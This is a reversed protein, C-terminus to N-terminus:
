KAPELSLVTLRVSPTGDTGILEIRDGDRIDKPEGTSLLTGSLYTQARAGFCHEIQWVGAKPRLLAFQEAGAVRAGSVGARELHRRGVVRPSDVCFGAGAIERLILGGRPSAPPHPMQPAAADTRIAPASSDTPGGGGVGIEDLLVRHLDAASPREAPVPSLAREIMGSVRGAHDDHEIWPLSSRSLRAGARITALYADQNLADAFPMFDGLIRCLILALSFVDSPSSPQCSQDRHEPSEYGPTGVFGWQRPWPEQVQAHIAFDFDILRLEYGTSLRRNPVLLVNSPKLDLHAVGVRHMEKVVFCLTRALIRRAQAASGDRHLWGNADSLPEELDLASEFYPYAQILGYSGLVTSSVLNPFRDPTASRQLALHILRQHEVFGDFWPLAKGPSNFQKVFLMRGDRTRALYSIAKAGEHITRVIELEGIIQNPRLRKAM